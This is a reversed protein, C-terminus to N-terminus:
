LSGGPYLAAVAPLSVKLAPNRPLADVAAFAVPMHYVPLSQRVLDKLEDVTSPPMGPVIEVAAFPVQGLRADPVGVM